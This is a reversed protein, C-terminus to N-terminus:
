HQKLARKCRMNSKNNSFQLLPLIEKSRNIEQAFYSPLIDWLGVVQLQKEYVLSFEQGLRDRIYSSM